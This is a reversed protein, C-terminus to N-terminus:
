VILPHFKGLSCGDHPITHRKGYTTSQGPALWHGEQTFHDPLPPAVQADDPRGV